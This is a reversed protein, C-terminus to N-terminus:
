KKKLKSYKKVNGTGEGLCLFGGKEEKWVSKKKKERV